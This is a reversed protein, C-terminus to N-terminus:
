RKRGRMSRTRTPKARLGRIMAGRRGRAAARRQVKERARSRSRERKEQARRDQSRSRFSRLSLAARLRRHWPVDASIGQRAAMVHEWYEEAAAEPLDDPGFVARDARSALAAAGLSPFEAHMRAATEARTTLPDARHGLDTLLDLIEQWGGDVRQPLPGRTRRRGRRVSKAILVAALALVVLLVPIAGYALYVVWSTAEPVDDEKDSDDSMAGPPPTPPEAPPPPPQAVQPLPKDIEKPDPETLDEDDEPEPDFRVWGLDGDFAVEVWATVDEGTIAVTGDKGEPVEFGVVVRAPIGISRAMQATLAAFQEQDGIRGMPQADPSEEDFGVPQLMALLRGAGHGSMSAAEGEDIGHSFTADRKIARSLHQFREYDSDSDGAWEEALEQLEGMKPAPPLSIDAFRATRQQEATPETYPEYRLEYTDGERVGSANVATQSMENLYLNEAMASVRDPEMEGIDIRNTEQGLTPLWVGSYAGITVTSTRLPADTSHLDVGAATRLFAGSPGDKEASGAVNYVQMDYLDLTALRVQDGGTADTLSFLKESRQNKFYGRFETLPSVYKQPDFPPTIQDRYAYRVSGEPPDLLSQAGIAVGGALALIVAGGVVRRRLVPNKWSGPRVTDSIITSQASELRAGEFRWTLWGVSIVAFLVGRLVPLAHETTGFLISVMILAVPFAWALVYRRSRLVISGAIVTLLLMSIWVVGLVGQSTGVPPAVTLAAKWSTVPAVLLEQLSGLTPIIGWLARTPAAFMSGFLLYVGLLLLLMRLPGWRFIACVLAILLGLVLAMVGTLVYQVSGYVTQFGFLALLFLASLVALDASRRGLSVQSYYSPEAAATTRATM